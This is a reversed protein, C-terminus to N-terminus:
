DAGCATTLPTLTDDWLSGTLTTAADNWICPGYYGGKPYYMSSWRDNSVVINSSTDGSNDGYIIYGGGAVFSGNVTVNNDGTQGFAHNDLFMAATQGQPNLMVDNQFHTYSDSSSSCSGPCTGGWPSSPWNTVFGGPVYAPEVHCVGGGSQNTIVIDTIIYSNAVDGRGEQGSCAGYSYVHDVLM